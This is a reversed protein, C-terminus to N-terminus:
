VAQLAYEALLSPDDIASASAVVNVDAGQLLRKVPVELKKGTRTHPIARMAIIVDPVHRPSASTRLLRNIEGRLDYDLTFGEELVVFLPMWYGGDPKEVGVVLAERVGRIQEVLAYIDATGIRVGNRNLTADSRGEVVVSGSRKVIIWDGHRWVGPYVDFYTERYRQGGRDNWFGIPMSPMPKTVVLEGVEEFVPAGAPDWSELAVGLAAASIEGDRVPLTPAGLAFASVVDTGGSASDLPVEGVAERTWRYSGAPLPAGSSAILRLASLDFTDKPRLGARESALLFGPNTGMLSVRERAVLSWMAEPGPFTPSGEYTVVTAGVLLASVSLNWVMWNTTTYWFFRDGRGLDFHLGMTRLHDVLVGAHSHLIGKPRGTTGSSFLVWLPASADVALIELPTAREAVSSWAHRACRLEPAESGLSPHFVVARVSPLGDAIAVLEGRRDVDRGNWRYGDAAFLVAPELQAFRDLVAAVGLDQGCVSWIAGVSATALFAIIAHESSALYGAVRDGPGVGQERLWCAVSAVRGRLEGYTLARRAGREDVAVIAEADVEGRSLAHEAYNLTAGEFWRTGPMPSGDLVARYPTHARVEFFRWVEAWFAAIDGVSWRGLAAYDTPDFALGHRLAVEEAFRVIQSREVSRRMTM